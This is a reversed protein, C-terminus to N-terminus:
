RTASYGDSRVCQFAAPVAKTANSNGKARQVGITRQLLRPRPRYVHVDTLGARRLLARGLVVGSGYKSASSLWQNRTM